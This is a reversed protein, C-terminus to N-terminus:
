KKGRVRQAEEPWLFAFAHAGSARGTKALSALGEAISARTCTLELDDYASPDRFVEYISAAEYELQADIWVGADDTSFVGGEFVDLDPVVGDVAVVQTVEQLRISRSYGGEDDYESSATLELTFSELWPAQHFLALVVGGVYAADLRDRAKRLRELQALTKLAAQTPRPQDSEDAQVVYDLAPMRVQREPKVADHSHSATDIASLNM